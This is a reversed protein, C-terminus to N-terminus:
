ALYCLLDVEEKSPAEVKSKELNSTEDTRAMSLFKEFCNFVNRGVQIRLKKFVFCLFFM